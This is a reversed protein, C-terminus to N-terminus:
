HFKVDSCTIPGIDLCTAQSTLRHKTKTIRFTRESLVNMSTSSLGYEAHQRLLGVRLVYIPAAHVDWAVHDAATMRDNIIVGLATWGTLEIGPCAASLKRQTAV